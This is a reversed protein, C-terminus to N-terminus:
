LLINPIKLKKQVGPEFEKGFIHLKHKICFKLKKNLALVMTCLWINRTRVLAYWYKMVFSCVTM